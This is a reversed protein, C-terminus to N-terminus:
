VLALSTCIATLTQIRGGNTHAHCIAEPRARERKYGRRAGERSRSRTRSILVEIVELSRAEIIIEGSTIDSANPRVLDPLASPVLKTESWM